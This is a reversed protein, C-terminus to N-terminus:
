GVRSHGLQEHHVNDGQLRYLPNGWVVFEVDPCTNVCGQLIAWHYNANTQMAESLSGDEERIGGDMGYLDLSTAGANLAYQVAGPGIPDRQETYTGLEWVPVKPKNRYADWKTAIQDEDIQEVHPIWTQIGFEGCRHLEGASQLAHVKAWDARPM